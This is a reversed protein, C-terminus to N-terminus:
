RAPVLGAQCVESSRVDWKVIEGVVISLTPEDLISFAGIHIDRWIAYFHLTTGDSAPYFVEIEYDQDLANDGSFIAPRVQYTKALVFERGGTKVSPRIYRMTENSEAAYQAGLITAKFTSHWSLRDTARTDYADFDDLFDRHYEDYIGPHVTRQERSNTIREAYELPCEMNNLVYFGRAKATNPTIELELGHFDEPQLATLKGEKHQGGLLREAKGGEHLADVAEAIVAPDADFHNWFYRALDDM